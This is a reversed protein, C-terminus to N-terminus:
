RRCFTSARRLKEFLSGSLKLCRVFRVVVTKYMNGSFRFIKTKYAITLPFVSRLFLGFRDVLHLKERWVRKFGAMFLRLFLFRGKRCVFRVAFGCFSFAFGAYRM